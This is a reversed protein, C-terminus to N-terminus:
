AWAAPNMTDLAERADDAVAVAEDAAAAGRRLTQSPKHELEDRAAARYARTALRAAEVAAIAVRHMNEARTHLERKRTETWSGDGKKFTQEGTAAPAVMAAIKVALIRRREDRESPSWTMSFVSEHEFILQIRDALLAEAPQDSM